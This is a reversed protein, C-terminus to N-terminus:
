RWKWKALLVKNFLEVDKVGLGRRRKIQMHHGLRAMNDKGKRGGVWLFNRHLSKIIKYANTLSKYILCINLTKREM